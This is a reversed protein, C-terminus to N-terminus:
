PAESPTASVAASAAGSAAGSPAGSPEGFGPQYDIGAEDRAAKLRRELETAVARQQIVNSAAPRAQPGSVPAPRTVVIQSVAVGGVGPVVFPERTGVAMIQNFLELPLTASDIQVNGRQFRIGLRNLAAVVETMSKASRLAEVYDNRPPTQFRIQDVGMLTRNAFMQPNDAMFKDIEAATPQKITRAIKQSLMQILLTEEQQQRRVIFDPSSDIQEERALGALLRRNVVNALAANRIQNKSNDDEPLQTNGLEANIEQLTVEDGNVVAVVQGEPKRDCGALLALAAVLAGAAVQRPLREGWGKQGTKLM